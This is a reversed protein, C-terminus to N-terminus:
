RRVPACALRTHPARRSSKKSSHWKWQARVHMCVRTCARACTRADVCGAGKCIRVADAYLAQTLDDPLGVSPAVEVVKQHRRQVSCDREFLHIVDTGDSLIQIEIHRPSEVYREIFMSGDGFAKEAENSAETFLPGLEEASRVVRMGRGGGGFAAKCIVPYGVEDCFATAEAVTSVSTETGPVIPVNYEMALQRAETKDGFRHIVKSPPGIFIIGAEECLQVFRTNESLFGYGPHIADVGEKKALEVIEEASLYAGVPSKGAGIQFSEDAKYRHLSGLDEKSYIAVTKIDMETAARCIRIAIEGRNAALIKRIPRWGPRVPPPTELATSM